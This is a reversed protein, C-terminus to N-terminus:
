DGLEVSNMVKKSGRNKELVALVTGKMQSKEEPKLQLNNQALEILQHIQQALLVMSKRLKLYLFPKVEVPDANEWDFYNLTEGFDDLVAEYFYFFDQYNILDSDFSEKIVDKLFDKKNSYRSYFHLLIKDIFKGKYFQEM